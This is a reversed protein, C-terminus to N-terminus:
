VCGLFNVSTYSIAKVKSCIIKNSVKTKPTIKNTTYNSSGVKCEPNHSISGIEWQFMKLM